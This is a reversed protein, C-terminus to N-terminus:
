VNKVQNNAAYIDAGNTKIVLLYTMMSDNMGGHLEATIVHM